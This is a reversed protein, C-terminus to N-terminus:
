ILGKDAMSSYGEATIVLSDLLTIDLMKLAAKVEKSIRIDSDSFNTAGSPHNHAIIVATALNDVAYKAIIRKDVVTGTIGGQSIKAYGTVNNSNNLTLIFFSEFIEIDGEWFQRMYNAAESSSKIKAAKISTPEKVIKYQSITKKYTKM